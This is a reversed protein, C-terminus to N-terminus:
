SCCWLGMQRGKNERKERRSVFRGTGKKEAKGLKKWELKVVEM